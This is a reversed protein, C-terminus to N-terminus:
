KKTIIILQQDPKIKESDLIGNCIEVDKIEGEYETCITSLAEGDKM